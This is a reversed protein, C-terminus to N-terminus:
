SKECLARLRSKKDALKGLIGFKLYVRLSYQDVTRRTLGCRQAIDKSRLGDLLCLYVDRERPTLSEVLRTM